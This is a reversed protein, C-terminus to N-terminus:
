MMEVRHAEHGGNVARSPADGIFATLTEIAEDARKADLLGKAEKLTAHDDYAISRIPPDLCTKQLARFSEFDTPM